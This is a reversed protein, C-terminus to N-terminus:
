GNKLSRKIENIVRITANGDSKGLYDSLFRQSGSELRKRLGADNVFTDMMKRYESAKKVSIAAGYKEFPVACHFRINILFVPIKFIMAEMAVTSGITVLFDTAPLLDKLEIDKDLLINPLDTSFTEQFPKINGYPHVKIVLYYDAKGRVWEILLELSGKDYAAQAAAYTIIKKGLPLKLKRRKEAKLKGSM